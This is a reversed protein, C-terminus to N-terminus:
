KKSSTDSSINQPFIDVTTELCPRLELDCAGLIFQGDSNRFYDLGRGIKIVWGNSLLIKRDHLTESFSFDFSIKRSMLSEKLEALRIIQNTNESDYTTLLSIRSLTCCKQVALECLRVLNQCQHFTRIFPDEIDIFTVTNDLFRGFVSAYSHGISGSEIKTSERYSGTLKKMHIFKRVKEARDLFEKAMATFYEKKSVERTDKAINLLIKVGEKYLVLAVTYQEKSDMEMARKLVSLAAVEM